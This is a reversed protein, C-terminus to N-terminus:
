PLRRSPERAATALITRLLAVAGAKDLPENGNGCKPSQVCSPCGMRCPCREIVALTADLHRRGVDFGLEAIGVGGPYGDYIVVTARGTDALLATSVGGVDWRDCIAFLPLIGIAAHEMAHLAGPVQRPALRARELVDTDVTYWLARTTLRSPPLDLPFRGLVDGTRTDRREYAVVQTVVEVPGLALRARGVDRAADEGLLTVDMQSRVQTREDSDDPEVVAVGDDLDLALVRYQQGLHLYLAGPHVVEPARSVDVTGVQRGDTEAIRVEYSSGSRLGIGPAPSGRGSWYARGDRLRVRDARVLERVGDALEDGWFAEDEHGLPAEFAACALHPLAVFPNALNVVAPEAPRSFVERPHAMLWQDLQDTGAVLVAVSGQGSRGARGAQQRLSALTGPFGNVVCADLTGIDVGLELASTAVVAQVRGAFLDAEIERRESPLYGARYSRVATALRDPLRRRVDSAVVETGRRSRCFAVTRWGGEVLATVLRATEVNSSARTGTVDDLLPPNWLAFSREGSPSGDDTVAQVPLGCLQSALRSPEGITASSFMFVPSSGYRACLRRLRRVVHGVHSGFVGRLVHLEDIVVYRLHRLFNAWRGHFPLLAGHVMEPNTLVVNAHRRVWARTEPLTDGDYTAAVIGPVELAAFARLQDQALAKTPYICLATGRDASVVTEAITAQYCLSKGSATGTAVVVSHGARALDIATAQHSWFSDVGLARQVVDPLPRELDAFRAPRAPQREVHVLRLGESLEALLLDADDRMPTRYTRAGM